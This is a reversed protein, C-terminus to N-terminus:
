QGRVANVESAKLPISGSIILLMNGNESRVETVPAYVEAQKNQTESGNASSVTHFSYVDSPFATGNARRGTWQIPDASRPIDMRQVEQGSSNSVVLEVRDAGAAPTPFVTVPAGDFQAPMAARVEQGVWDAMQAMSTVNMQTMFKNLLENTLVQQEVGSFTALQQAFEASDTPNLPDQNQMQVTLM